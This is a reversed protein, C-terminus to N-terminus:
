RHMPNEREHIRKGERWYGAGFGPFRLLARCKGSPNPFGASESFPRGLPARAGASIIGDHIGTEFEIAQM